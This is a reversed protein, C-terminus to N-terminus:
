EPRLHYEKDRVCLVEEKRPTFHCRIYEPVLYACGATQHIHIGIKSFDDSLATVRAM